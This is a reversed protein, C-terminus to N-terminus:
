LKDTKLNKYQQKRFLSIAQKDREEWYTEGIREEEKKQAEEMAIRAFFAVRKREQENYIKDKYYRPMSIKKGDEINCYMRNDLDAKHWNVMAPSLYSMGLGKSMLSFERERDDNKHYFTTTKKSIYKLTYGISAGGVTGYHIYGLNWSKDILELKANFLIIHYHPRKTKGGYEGVAYYKISNNLGEAEHNKRLRKFFKQLVQKDLTRFGNPSIPMNGPSFTLTLFYASSSHREEQM